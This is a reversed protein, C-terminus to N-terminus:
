EGGAGVEVLDGAANLELGYKRAERLTEEPWHVRGASTGGLIALMLGSEDGLNRFGRSVGVPVSITDYPDLVIKHEDGELNKWFIEWQGILAMFVEIT